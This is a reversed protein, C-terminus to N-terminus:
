QLLGVLQKNKIQLTKMQNIRSTLASNDRASSSIPLSKQRPSPLVQIHQSLAAGHSGHCHERAQKWCGARESVQASPFPLYQGGESESILAQGQICGILVKEM